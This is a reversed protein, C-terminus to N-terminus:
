VKAAAAARWRPMSIVTFIAALSAAAVFFFVARPSGHDLMTGFVLPAIIGGINYGSTVFGFVKGFSGPPTSERVILDRSPMIVGNLFGALSMVAILLATGPNVSGIVLAVVASGALGAAAVLSHRPTRAAVFGGSLVGIATLLLFGSLATNAVALPTGYLAGLTVISFNQLGASALTVLVFFLLNQLIPVSLLLRLGSPTGPAEAATKKGAQRHDPELGRSLAILVAVALGLAAAGLFAGRWGFFGYILLLTGPAAAGGLMGSFTHIAFAHSMRESSIRNSLLTYDAPHYVTNALGAVAFMALFVWFSHVLAAVAFAGAGLALGAALLPRAGIRDVVFGTPTQLLATVVNFAVFALSLETYGVGYDARIFVFLPPLLMIFFHSVFHAASVLAIHWTEKRRGSGSSLTAAQTSTL